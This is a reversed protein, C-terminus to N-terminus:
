QVLVVQTLTRGDQTKIVFEHEGPPLLYGPITVRGLSDSQRVVRGDITVQAGAIPTGDAEKLTIVRDTGASQVAVSPYELPGSRSSQRVLSISPVAGVPARVTVSSRVAELDVERAIVPHDGSVPSDPHSLTVVDGVRLVRELGSATITWNPRAWMQLLRTGVSVAVRPEAVFRLVLDSPREGFERVADLASLEVAQTPTDDELAFEVRLTTVISDLATDVKSLVHRAAVTFRAADTTVAPFLVCRSPSSFVAGISRCVQRVADRVSLPSVFSGGIPLTSTASRFAGFDGADVSLGAVNALLDWVVDAASDMLAGTTPHPKGRGTASVTVGEDVPADFEVLAVVRGTSDLANRWVWNGVDTDAVRVADIAVVPHDAWCWLRRTDDVQLCAGLTEGYRLPITRAERFGAWVTSQRLPLPEILSRM